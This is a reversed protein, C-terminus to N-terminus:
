PIPTARLVMLRTVTPHVELKRHLWTWDADTVIRRELCGDIKATGQETPDTPTGLFAMVLYYHYPATSPCTAQAPTPTPHPPTTAAQAASAWLWASLLGVCWLNSQKM